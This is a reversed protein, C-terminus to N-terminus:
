RADGTRTHRARALIREPKLPTENFEAGFPALADSVANAIAAPPGIAGGEGVGKVGLPNLPSPSHLHILQFDPMDDARPMAYDMLSGTLLQGEADYVFGELLIGGLGQAAGGMIQGELLMPNVVNGCDHAIVYKEIKVRGVEIDVEVIAAHTANSWTVTQPEFHFTDELGPEVGEPRGHDWGPRAAQALKALSITRAPVGVIGVGGERLELDAPACELLHAAIALVKKRLRESAHHIAASLTVTSRSAITGFGMPIAATDALSVVVDDPTVSWADAVIQAFITEMGQGQPCSGGSLYVKGSADIRVTASEFPGVGTGETYSGIGLGLYRGQSLAERQRRRFAETGGLAELAQRLGAQFDGSDYVIPQGDRYPIGVSYPMEDARVMNRRRVEAPELGVASAVLDISREVAFSAEPRGAGRYAASPVKNTTVVKATAAFHEVKYPGLLHAATNYIIGAGIPNWAGCDATFNDRLALIRGEEDFGIELEHIQDRAHTASLFHEQRDEIWSVPRRIRRALFPILLDEPYVHGKVGFGGGVDPAVCRVRSEPLGLVSAAERRVWHVVQTSSWITVSDTRPEHIGIVGRCEMPLGSYRHHYFRRRLRKPARSLAAEIAGKGIGFEGILNTGLREHVLPAGARLAEEPDIVAPLPELEPQVLEAADEAAYRTEAVVVAIAEGVHRAKDIALLPQQPNHLKHEVLARWKSPLSLQSDPVPPLLRALEAGSLVMTVGPASAARTVDVARIHAHALTSRVFVAHLMRPLAIDAIFQGQGTLLRQDERRLISRGVFPTQRADTM